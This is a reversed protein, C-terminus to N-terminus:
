AASMATICIRKPPSRPLLTATGAIPPLWGAAMWARRGSKDAQRLEALRLRALQRQAAPIESDSASSKAGLEAIFEKGGLGIGGTVAAGLGAALPSNRDTMGAAVFKRYAEKGRRGGFCDILWDTTLWDPATAMGATARYSSWPWDEARKRLGARVPNLVLYRALELLYADREVLLAKYRGQFVHGVRGHARNLRQTYVGNLQRMGRSLNAEPTEILLHYHNDMLCYGHCLWGFHEIVEGLIDLFARRDGDDLYIAEGRNGRATLHYLAGPYEIRLSRAMGTSYCRMTCFSLGSGKEASKRRVAKLM